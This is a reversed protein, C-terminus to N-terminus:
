NVESRVECKVWKMRKGEKGKGRQSRQLTTFLFCSLLWLSFFLFSFSHHTLLFSFHFARKRWWGNGKWKGKKVMWRVKSKLEVNWPTVRNYSSFRNNNRNGKHEKRKLKITISHFSARILSFSLFCLSCLFVHNTEEREKREKTKILNCASVVSRTFKILLFCFLLAFPRSHSGRERTENREVEKCKKGRREEKDKKQKFRIFHPSFPHFFFSLHFSFHFFSRFSCLESWEDKM